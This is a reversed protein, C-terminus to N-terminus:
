AWDNIYYQDFVQGNHGEKQKYTIPFSQSGNGVGFKAAYGEFDQAIKNGIESTRLQHSFLIRGAYDGEVIRFWCTLMPKGSKSVTNYCKEFRAKYTGVPVPVTNYGSNANAM